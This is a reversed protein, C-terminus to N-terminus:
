KWIHPIWRWGSINNIQKWKELVEDAADLGSLAFVNRMIM